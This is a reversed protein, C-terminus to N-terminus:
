KKRKVLFAEPVERGSFRLSRDWVSQPITKQYEPNFALSYGEYDGQIIGRIMYFDEADFRYREVVALYSLATDKHGEKVQKMIANGLKAHVYKFADSPEPLVFTGYDGIGFLKSIDIDDWNINLMRRVDHNIPKEGDFIHNPHCVYICHGDDIVSLMDTILKKGEENFMTEKNNELRTFYLSSAGEELNCRDYDLCFKNLADISLLVSADWSLDQKMLFDDLLSVDYRLARLKNIFSTIAESNNLKFLAVEGKKSLSIEEYDDHPIDDNYTISVYGNNKFEELKEKEAVSLSSVFSSLRLPGCVDIKRLLVQDIIVKEM